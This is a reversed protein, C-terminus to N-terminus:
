ATARRQQFPVQENDVDEPVSIDFLLRRPAFLHSGSAGVIRKSCRRAPETRHQLVSGRDSVDSKTKLPSKFSNWVDAVVTLTVLDEWRCRWLVGMFSAATGATPIFIKDPAALSRRFTPFM